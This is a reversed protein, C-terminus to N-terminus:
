KKFNKYGRFIGTIIEKAYFHKDPMDSELALGAASLNDYWVRVIEATFNSKVRSGFEGELIIYTSFTSDFPQGVSGTNLLVRGRTNEIHIKNQTVFNDYTINSLKALMKYFDDDYNVKFCYHIDGYIVVDSRDQYFSGEPIDFLESHMSIDSEFYIRRYIDRPHAHYMRVLNGSLWFEVFFKWTKIYEIQQETLRDLYFKIPFGNTNGSYLLYDEWNGILIEDCFNKCIDICESPNPGKGIIDGLCYVIDINKSKIDDITANLAFINSHIDSIVAIRTM